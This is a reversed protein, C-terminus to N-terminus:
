SQARYCHFIQAHIQRLHPPPSPTELDPFLANVQFGRIRREVPSNRITSTREEATTTWPFGLSKAIRWSIVSRLRM